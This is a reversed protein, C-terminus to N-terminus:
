TWLHLQNHFQHASQHFVLIILLAVLIVQLLFLVQLPLFQRSFYSFHSLDLVSPKPASKKKLICIPSKTTLAKFSANLSPSNDAVCFCPMSVHMGLPSLFLSKMLFISVLKGELHQRYSLMKMQELQMAFLIVVTKGSNIFSSWVPNIEFWYM